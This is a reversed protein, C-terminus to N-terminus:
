VCCSVCSQTTHQLRVQHRTVVTPAREVGVSQFDMLSATAGRRALDRPATVLYATRTDRNGRQGAETHSQGSRPNRNSIETHSPCMESGYEHPTWNSDQGCRSNQSFNGM